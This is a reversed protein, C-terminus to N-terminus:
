RPCACAKQGFTITMYLAVKTTICNADACLRPICKQIRPPLSVNDMLVVEDAKGRHRDYKNTAYYQRRHYLETDVYENQLFGYIDEMMLVDFLAKRTCM